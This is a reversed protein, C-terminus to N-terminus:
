PKLDLSAKGSEGDFPVSSHEHTVLWTGDMKRYCVTARVWMDVHQGDKRTANIRNLSHCFAVDAGTTIRLDRVEYGIPGEFTAVWEEARTRVADAGVHQLHNIVDFLLIDPAYNATLGNIDKARVAAAGHEVLKRIQAADTETSNETAM